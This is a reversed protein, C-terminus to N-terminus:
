GAIAANATDATKRNLSGKISVARIALGKLAIRNRLTWQSNAYMDFLMGATGILPIWVLGITKFSPDIIALHFILATAAVSIVTMPAFYHLVLQVAHKGDPREIGLKELLPIFSVAMLLIAPMVGIVIILKWSSYFDM